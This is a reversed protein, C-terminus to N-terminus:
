DCLKIKKCCQEPTAHKQIDADLDMMLDKIVDMCLNEFSGFRGCLKQIHKELWQISYGAGAAEADKVLDECTDCLLGGLKALTQAMFVEKPSKRITTSAAVALIAVLAFITLKNMTRTRLSAWVDEIKDQLWHDSYQVGASDGDKVIDECMDCLLGGMKALTETMFVEKPSKHVVTASAVCFLALLAIATFKNM